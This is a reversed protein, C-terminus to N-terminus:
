KLEAVSDLLKKAKSFRKALSPNEIWTRIVHLSESEDDKRVSTKFLREYDKLVESISEGALNIRAEALALDLRLQAKQAEASGRKARNIVSKRLEEFSEESEIVKGDIKYELGLKTYEKLMENQSNTLMKIGERAIGSRRFQQKFEPISL